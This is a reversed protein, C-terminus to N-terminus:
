AVQPGLLDSIISKSIQLPDLNYTGAKIQNAANVAQARIKNAGLQLGSLVSSLKSLQTQYTSTTADDSVSAPASAVAKQSNITRNAKDAESPASVTNQQGGISSIQSMFSKWRAGAPASKGQQLIYRNV